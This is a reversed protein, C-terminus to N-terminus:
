LGARKYADAAGGILQAAASFVQDCQGVVVEVDRHHRAISDTTPDKLDMDHAIANRAVFFEDLEELDADPVSTRSIGLVSRVRAKLDTSGQYSSRTRESLYVELLRTTPDLDIVADRLHADISSAALSQKFYQEYQHRAGTGPRPVLARGVDNVLRKMTADLGASTFVIASRVVDVEVKSMRGKATTNSSRRADDLVQVAGLLGLVSAHARGLVRYAPRIPPAQVRPAPPLKALTRSVSLRKRLPLLPGNLISANM